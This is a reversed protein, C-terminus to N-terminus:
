LISTCQFAQFTLKPHHPPPLPKQRSPSPPPKSLVHTAPAQSACLLAQMGLFSDLLHGRQPESPFVASPRPADGWKWTRYQLSSLHNRQQQQKTKNKQLSFPPSAGWTSLPSWSPRDRQSHLGGGRREWVPCGPLRDPPQWWGGSAGPTLRCGLLRRRRGARGVAGTARKPTGPITPSGGFRSGPRREEGTGRLGQLGRGRQGCM